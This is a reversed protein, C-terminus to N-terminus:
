VCVDVNRAAPEARKHSTIDMVAVSVGVVEGGEDRAPQYTALLTRGPTGPSSGPVRVELDYIAEGGLARHLYPEIQDYFEPIIQSVNRGLHEAVTRNNVAALRENISVFRLQEDVFCLGVPAGDYIAQLQALRQAPYAELNACIAEARPLDPQVCPMTSRSAILEPVEQAPIPKGYLWGQGRDCGMSILLTAQATEEIGEAVTIMGLSQGLGVMAAVIKRSEREYLMSRVFSMDLKLEDFPLVQLHHLSSYGTGFDDLSLRVGMSKLMRACALARGLDDVLATETIEIVLRRLPFCEEEAIRGIVAALTGGLLQPASVNVSIYMSEPISDRAVALVSHLMKATFRQSLGTEEIVPIFANPSILGYRPHQWRTLAEFGVIAATRLDVKPQFHSIFQGEHIAKRLDREGWSTMPM